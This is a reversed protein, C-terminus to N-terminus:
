ESLVRDCLAQVTALAEPPLGADAIRALAAEAIDAEDATLRQDRVAPLDFWTYLDVAQRSPPATPSLQHKAALRERTQPWPVHPDDDRYPPPDHRALDGYYYLLYGRNLSSLDIDAALAALYDCTAEHDDLRALAWNLSNRLFPDRESELLVRLDDAAPVDLRAAIYPVLNGITRRDADPREGAKRYVGALWRPWAYADTATARLLATLHRRVEPPLDIRLADAAADADRARHADALALAVRQAVLFEYFSYHLFAALLGDAAPVPDIIGALARYACDRNLSHADHLRAVLAALPLRDVGGYDAFAHWAAERWLEAAPTHTDCAARALAADTVAASRSIYLEYLSTQDRVSGAADAIHTLMRAFLPRQVLQRLAEDRNVRDPLAADKLLGQDALRRAFDAFERDASWAPMALIQEFLETPVASRNRDYDDSRSTVLLPGLRSLARLATAIASPEAAILAEDVGDVIIAVPQDDDFAAIGVLSAAVALLDARTQPMADLMADLDIPLPVRGDADLMERTVSYALVSKGSGPAGLVLAGHGADLSRAVDATTASDGGVVSLLPAQVLLGRSRLQSISLDTPFATRRQGLRQALAVAVSRSGSSGTGLVVDHRLATLVHHASQHGDELNKVDLRFQAGIWRRPWVEVHYHGDNDRYLADFSYGHTPPAGDDEGHVAGAVITALEGGDGSRRTESHATHVHGHLHVDAATQLYATVEAANKEELDDVPHHTLVVVVHDTARVAPLTAAIARKAVRLRGRDEDDNSLLSTNWGVLRITVGANASIDAYWGAHSEAHPNGYRAAFAHYNAFRDSLAARDTDHALREDLADATDRPDRTDRVLRWLAPDGQSTTRQVDHNGPVSYVARAGVADRCRDLWGGARSYEHPDRVNGSFAVDGTVLIADPPPVKGEAVLRRADEVLRDLVIQQDAQWAVSGHGAHIDSLHLWAWVLTTDACSDAPITM